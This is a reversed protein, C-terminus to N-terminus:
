PKQQLLPVGDGAPKSKCLMVGLLCCMHRAMQGYSFYLPVCGEIMRHCSQRQRPDYNDMLTANMRCPLCRRGSRQVKLCCGSGLAGLGCHIYGLNWRNTGDVGINLWTYDHARPQLVHTAPVTRAGYLLYYTM